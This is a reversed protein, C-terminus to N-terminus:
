KSTGPVGFSPNNTPQLIQAQTQQEQVQSNELGRRLQFLEGQVQCLNSIEQETIKKSLEPKINELAKIFEESNAPLSQFLTALKDERDQKTATLVSNSRLKDKASSILVELDSERSVIQKQLDKQQEQIRVQREQRQQDLQIQRQLSAITQERYNLEQTLRTNTEQLSQTQEQSRQCFNQM